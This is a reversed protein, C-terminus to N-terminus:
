SAKRGRGKLFNPPTWDASNPRQPERLRAEYDLVSVVRCLAFEDPTLARKVLVTAAARDPALWERPKQNAGLVPTPEGTLIDPVLALWRIDSM